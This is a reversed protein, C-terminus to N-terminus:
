LPLAYTFTIINNKKLLYSFFLGYIWKVINNGKLFNSIINSVEESAEDAVRAILANSAISILSDAEGLM